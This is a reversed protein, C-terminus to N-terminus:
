LLKALNGIYTMDGDRWSYRGARSGNERPGTKKQARGGGVTV